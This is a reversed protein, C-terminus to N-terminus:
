MLFGGVIEASLVNAIQVQSYAQYGYLVLSLAGILHAAGFDIRSPIMSRRRPDAQFWEITFRFAFYAVLVVLIYPVAQPSKLTLRLSEIPRADFEIGIFEWAILLASSLGYAKHAGQYSESLQPVDEWTLKQAM